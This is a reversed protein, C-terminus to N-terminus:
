NAPADPVEPWVVRDLMPPIPREGLAAPDTVDALFRAFLFEARDLHPTYRIAQPSGSAKLHEVTFHPHADTDGARRVLSLRVRRGARPCGRVFFTARERRVASSDARRSAKV